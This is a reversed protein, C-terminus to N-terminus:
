KKMPTTQKTRIKRIATVKLGDVWDRIFAIMITTATPNIIM